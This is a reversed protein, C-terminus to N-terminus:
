RTKRVKKILRKPIWYSRAIVSVLIAKETEGVIACWFTEGWKFGEEYMRALTFASHSILAEHTITGSNRDVKHYLPEHYNKLEYEIPQELKINEM